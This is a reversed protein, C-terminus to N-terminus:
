SATRNSNKLPNRTPASLIHHAHASALQTCTPCEYCQACASERHSCGPIGNVSVQVPIQVLAALDKQESTARGKAMAFAASAISSKHPRHVM